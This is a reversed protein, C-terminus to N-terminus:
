STRCCNMYAGCGLCGCVKLCSKLSFYPQSKNHIGRDAAPIEVAVVAKFFAVELQVADAVGGEELDGAPDAGRVELLLGAHEVGEVALDQTRLL